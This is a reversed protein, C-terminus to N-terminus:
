SPQNNIKPSIRAGSQSQRGLFAHLRYNLLPNRNFGNTIFQAPTAMNSSFIDIITESIKKITPPRIPPNKNHCNSLPIFALFQGVAGPL